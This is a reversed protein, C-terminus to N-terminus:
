LEDLYAVRLGPDAACRERFDRCVFLAPVLTTSATCWGASFRQPLHAGTAGCVFWRRSHFASSKRRCM